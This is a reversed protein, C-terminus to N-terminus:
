SEEGRQHPAANPGAQGDPKGEALSAIQRELAPMVAFQLGLRVGAGVLRKTLSTFLGGGVVYGIGVAALLTGVPHEDILAGVDFAVAEAAEEVKEDTSGEPAGSSADGSEKVKVRKDVSM